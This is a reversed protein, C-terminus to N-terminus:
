WWHQVLGLVYLALALGLCGLIIARKDRIFRIVDTVFPSALAVITAAPIIKLWTPPGGKEHWDALWKYVLVAVPACVLLAWNFLVVPGIKILPDQWSWSLLAKQWRPRRAWRAEETARAEMAERRREAEIAAIRQKYAPLAESPNRVHSHRSHGCAKCPVEYEINPDPPSWGVKQGVVMELKSANLDSSLRRLQRITGRDSRFRQCDCEGCATSASKRAM